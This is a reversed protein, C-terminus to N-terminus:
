WSSVLTKGACTLLVIRDRNTEVVLAHDYRIYSFSGDEPVDAAIVPLLFDLSDRCHQYTPYTEATVVTISEMAEEFVLPQNAGVAITIVLMAVSM